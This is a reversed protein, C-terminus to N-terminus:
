FQVSFSDPTSHSMLITSHIYITTIASYCYISYAFNKKNQDAITLQTVYQWVFKTVKPFKAYRKRGNEKREHCKTACLIQILKEM